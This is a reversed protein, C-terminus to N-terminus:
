SPPAAACFARGNFSDGILSNDGSLRIRAALAEPSDGADVQGPACAYVHVFRNPTACTGYTRGMGDRGITAWAVTQGSPDLCWAWHGKAMDVHIDHLSGVGSYCGAALLLAFAPLLVRVM